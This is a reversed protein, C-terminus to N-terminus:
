IFNLAQQYTFHFEGSLIIGIISLGLGIEAKVIYKLGSLKDEMWILRMLAMGFGAIVLGHCFIVSVIFYAVCGKDGILEFGPTQIVVSSITTLTIIMMTGLHVIQFFIRPRHISIKSIHFNM